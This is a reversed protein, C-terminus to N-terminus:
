ITKCCCVSCEWFSIRRTQALNQGPKLFFFINVMLHIFQMVIIFHSHQSSLCSIWQLHLVVRERYFSLWLLISPGHTISVNNPTKLVWLYKLFWLGFVVLDYLMWYGSHVSWGQGELWCWCCFGGMLRERGATKPYVEHFTVAELDWKREKKKRKDNEKLKTSKAM